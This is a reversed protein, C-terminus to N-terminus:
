PRRCRRAFNTTDTQGPRACENRRGRAPNPIEPAAAEPFARVADLWRLHCEAEDAMSEFLDSLMPDAAELLRSLKRTRDRIQEEFRVAESVRSVSSM